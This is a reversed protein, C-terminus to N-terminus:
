NERKNTHAILLLGVYRAKSGCRWPATFLWNAFCRVLLYISKLNHMSTFSIFISILKKNIKNIMHLNIQLYINGRFIKRTSIAPIIVPCKQSVAMKSM